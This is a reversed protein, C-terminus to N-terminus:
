LMDWPLSKYFSKVQEYSEDFEPLDAVTLRLLHYNERSRSEIKPDDLGGVHLYSEIGKGDSKKLLTSLIKFKDDDTLEITTTLYNLDYIDQERGRNRVEQQLVSRFKEAIIDIISYAIISTNDSITIIESDYTAENFSYDIKVVKPSIGREIFKRQKEIAYDAYGINIKLTPFTGEANPEVETRQVWCRITLGLEGSASILSDDLEKIFSEENFDKFKNATSFDVDKTYRKSKHRIGILNGGKMIMTTRLEDSSGIAHLLIRVAIKQDMEGASDRVWESLDVEM